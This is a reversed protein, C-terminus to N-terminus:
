TCKPPGRWAGSALCVWSSEVEFGCSMSLPQCQGQPRHPTDELILLAAGSRVQTRARKAADAAAAEEGARKSPVLPSPCAFPFPDLEVVELGNGAGVVGGQAQLKAARMREAEAAAAEREGEERAKECEEREREGQLLRESEREYRKRGEDWREEVVIKGERVWAEVVGEVVEDHTFRHLQGVAAAVVELERGGKGDQVGKLSAGKFNRGAAEAEARSAYGM